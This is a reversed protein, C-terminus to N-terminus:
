SRVAISRFGSNPILQEPAELRLVMKLVAEITSHMQAPVRISACGSLEIVVMPSADGADSRNENLLVETQTSDEASSLRARSSGSDASQQSSPSAYLEGCDLARRRGNCFQHVKLNVRRCYEQVTLESSRQRTVRTM